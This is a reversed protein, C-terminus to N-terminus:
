GDGNGEAREAAEDERKMEDLTRRLEEPMPKIECVYDEGADELGSAVLAALWDTSGGARRLEAVNARLARALAHIDDSM